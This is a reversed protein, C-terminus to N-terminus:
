PTTGRTLEQLPIPVGRRGEGGIVIRHPEIEQVLYGSEELREGEAYERGDIIAMKRGGMRIFGSFVPLQEFAPPPLRPADFRDPWPQTAMRIIGREAPNLRDATSEGSIRNIFGSLAEGDATGDKRFEVARPNWFVEYAGYLLSAFALVLIIKERISM